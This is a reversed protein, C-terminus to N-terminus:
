FMTQLILRELPLQHRLFLSHSSHGAGETRPRQLCHHPPWQLHTDAILSDGAASCVLHNQFLRTKCYFLSQCRWGWIFDDFQPRKQESKHLLSQCLIVNRSFPRKTLNPNEEITESKRPKHSHNTRAIAYNSSIQLTQLWPKSHDM